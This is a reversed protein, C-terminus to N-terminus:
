LVIKVGQKDYSMIYIGRTLRIFVNKGAPIYKKVVIRGTSDYVSVFQSEKTANVTVGGNVIEVDLDKATPQVAAVATVDELRKISINDVFIGGGVIEGRLEYHLNSRGAPIGLDAREWDNTASSFTRFLSESNDDSALILTLTPALNDIQLLQYYLTYIYSSDKNLTISPSVLAADGASSIKGGHLMALKNGDQASPILDTDSFFGSGPYVRWVLSGTNAVNTFTSLGTEFSERYIITSDETEEKPNDGGAGSLFFHINGDSDKRMSSMAFTVVSGDWAFAAPTTTASFSTKRAALFECAANSIDGYNKNEIPTKATSSACVPYFMQPHKSNLDNASIHKEFDPHHHYIMLGGGPLSQDFGKQPRNEVLYFDGEVGTEIKMIENELLTQEGEEQLNEVAVWGFDYARVYPNFGAPSAGDENWSGSAMLDWSGTGTYQGGTSYNTDYYDNAGLAHGLEHCIVGIRTLKAGSNSRLEPSCSYSKFRMGNMTIPLVYPYEHAWIANSSAGAEEGYGAYIIHVNDVYGDGDEDYISLDLDAPLSRIAEVAMALPNQDNSYETNAGYYTMDNATEYPGFVDTVYDLQGGSAFSYFDRVSGVANDETYGTENFLREIDEKEFTMKKDAFQMLIAIARREGTINKVTSAKRGLSMTKNNDGVAAIYQIQLDRDTNKKFDKLEETEEEYPVLRFHSTCVMGDENKEAYVWGLSDSLLTYGDESKGFKCNEDGYLYISVWKNEAIEVKIKKPYAPSSNITSSFLLTLTLLTILRAMHYIYFFPLSRLITHWM